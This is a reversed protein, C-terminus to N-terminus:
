KNPLKVSEISCILPKTITCNKESCLLVHSARNSEKREANAQENAPESQLRRTMSESREKCAAQRPVVRLAVGGGSGWGLSGGGGAGM